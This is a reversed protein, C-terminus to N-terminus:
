ASAAGGAQQEQPYALYKDHNQALDAPGRLSGVLRALHRPLKRENAPEEDDRKPSDPQDAMRPTYAGTM